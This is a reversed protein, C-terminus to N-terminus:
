WRKAPEKAPYFSGRWDRYHWGSTGVFMPVGSSTVASGTTPERALVPLLGAHFVAGLLHALLELLEVLVDLPQLFVRGVDFIRHMQFPLPRRIVLTARLMRVLVVLLDGRRTSGSIPNIGSSLHGAAM